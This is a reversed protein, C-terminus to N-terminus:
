DVNARLAGLARSLRSKFTGEKVGAAGAAESITLQQMYHLVIAERLKWPLKEVGAMLRGLREQQGAREGSGLGGDSLELGEISSAKRHKQRRWWHRSVNSAIRYLWGTLAGSNRLQGIHGWARLFTEQTLDESMQHGHGLRRMFLYIQEHYTEVLEEAASRDGTRLRAALLRDRDAADTRKGDLAQVEGKLHVVAKRQEMLKTEDAM